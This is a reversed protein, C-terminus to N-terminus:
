FNQKKVFTQLASNFATPNELNSYHGAKEIVTLESGAIKDNMKHATELNTVNDEEGFILLTPVTIKELLNTHDVREAMGRLAAIASEPPCKLFQKKLFDLLEQNKLKTNECILNPLMNEVLAQSGQKEIKEILEFRSNRKEETDAEYTTDCLILAAFKEPNQHYLNFAVYGGMSLGCIIAKEIKLDDLLEAIDNAMDEMRNIDSSNRNEGFGRLNPTIVRFGLNSLAEINLRWMTRSLPFAHLLVFAQGNGFEEFPIEM